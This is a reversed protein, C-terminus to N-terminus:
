DLQAQLSEMLRQPVRHEHVFRHVMASVEASIKDLQGKGDTLQAVRSHMDHDSLGDGRTEATRGLAHELGEALQGADKIGGIKKMVYSFAFYTSADVEINEEERGDVELEDFKNNVTEETHYEALDPALRDKGVIRCLGGLAPLYICMWRITRRYEHVGYELDHFDLGEEGPMGGGKETVKEAADALCSLVGKRDKSYKKWDVQDLEDLIQEMAPSFVAEGDLQLWLSDRLRRTLNQLEVHYGGTFYGVAMDGASLDVAEQRFADHYDIRGLGDELEKFRTLHAEFVAEDDDHTDRYIRALAELDFLAGRASGDREKKTDYFRAAPGELDSTQFGEAAAQLHPVLVRLKKAFRYHGIRTKDSAIIEDLRAAINEFSM